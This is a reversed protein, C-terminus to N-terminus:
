IHLSRDACSGFRPIELRERRNTGRQLPRCASVAKSFGTSCKLLRRQFAPGSGITPDGYYPKSVVVLPRRISTLGLLSSVGTFEQSAKGVTPHGCYVDFRRSRGPFNSNIARRQAEDYSAQSEVQGLLKGDFAITWRVKRPLFSNVPRWESRKKLVRADRDESSQVRSRWWDAARGLVERIGMVQLTRVAYWPSEDGYDGTLVPAM